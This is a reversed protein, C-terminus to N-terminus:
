VFGYLSNVPLARFGPKSVVCAKESRGFSKMLLSVVDLADAAIVYYRM